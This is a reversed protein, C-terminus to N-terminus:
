KLESQVSEHNGDYHCDIPRRYMCNSIAAKQKLGSGSDKVGETLLEPEEDSDRNHGDSPSRGNERLQSNFIPLVRLVSHQTM